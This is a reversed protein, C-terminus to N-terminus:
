ILKLYSRKHINHAESIYNELINDINDCATEFEHVLNADNHIRFKMNHIYKMIKGKTHILKELKKENVYSESLTVFFRKCYKHVKEAGRQDFKACKNITMLYTHINPDNVVRSYERIRPKLYYIYLGYLSVLTCFTLIYTFM